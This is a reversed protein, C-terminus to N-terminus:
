HGRVENPDERVSCLSSQIDIQRDLRSIKLKSWSQAGLRLRGERSMREHWTEAETQPPGLQAPSLNM